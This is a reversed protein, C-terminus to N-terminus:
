HIRDRNCWRYWDTATVCTNMLLVCVYCRAPAIVLCLQLRLLQESSDIKPKKAETAPSRPTSGFILVSVILELCSSAVLIGEHWM